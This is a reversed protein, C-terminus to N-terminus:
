FCLAMMSLECQKLFSMQVEGACPVILVCGLIGTSSHLTKVFAFDLWSAVDSILQSVWPLFLPYFLRNVCLAHQQGASSHMKIQRRISDQDAQQHNINGDPQPAQREKITQIAM